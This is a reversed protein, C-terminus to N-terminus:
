QTFTLGNCRLLTVYNLIFIVDNVCLDNVLTECKIKICM